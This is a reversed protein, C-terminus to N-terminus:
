IVCEDPAEYRQMNVGRCSDVCRADPETDTALTQHLMESCSHTEVICERLKVVQGELSLNRLCLM